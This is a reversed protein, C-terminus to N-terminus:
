QARAQFALVSGDGMGALVGRGEPCAALSMCGGAGPPLLLVAADELSHAWLLWRRM